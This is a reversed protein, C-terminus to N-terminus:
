SGSDFSDRDGGVDREIIEGEELGVLLGIGEGEGAGREGM